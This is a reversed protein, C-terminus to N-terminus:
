NRLQGRLAAEKPQAAGDAGLLFLSHMIQALRAQEKAWAFNPKVRIARNRRMNQTACPEPLLSHIGCFDYTNRPKLRLKVGFQAIRGTRM